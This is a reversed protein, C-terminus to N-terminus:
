SAVASTESLAQQSLADRVRAEAPLSLEPKM